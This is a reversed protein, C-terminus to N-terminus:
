LAIETVNGLHMGVVWMLRLLVDFDALEVHLALVIPSGFVAEALSEDVLGAVRDGSKSQGFHEVGLALIGFSGLGILFVQLNRGAAFIRGFRLLSQRPQLLLGGCLPSLPTCVTPAHRTCRVCFTVLRTAALEITL